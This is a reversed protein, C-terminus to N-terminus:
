YHKGIIIIVTMGMFQTKFILNTEPNSNYRNLLLIYLVYINYKSTNKNITEWYKLVSYKIPIYYKDALIYINCM